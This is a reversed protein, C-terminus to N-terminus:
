HVANKAAGVLMCGGFEVFSNLFVLCFAVGLTNAIRIPWPQNRTFAFALPLSFATITWLSVTLGRGIVAGVNAVDVGDGGHIMPVPPMWSDAAWVAVMAAVAPMGLLMWQWVKRPQKWDIPKM